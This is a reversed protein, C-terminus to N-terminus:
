KIVEDLRFKKLGIRWEGSYTRMSFWVALTNGDVLGTSRYLSQANFFHRSRSILPKKEFQWDVLNTSTALYLDQYSFEKKFANILMYYTGIEDSFVDIHWPNLSGPLNISVDEASGRQWNFRSDSVIQKISLARDKLGSVYFLYYDSGSVLVAPSLALSDLSEFSYMIELTWAWAIGDPSSRQVFQEDPGSRYILNFTSDAPDFFIDPDSNIANLPKQVLPNLGEVPERFKWGNESILMSPNEFDGNGFPFPTFVLYYRSGTAEDLRFLIDPHVAQGTGDYTPIDLITEEPLGHFADFENDNYCANVGLLMGTLLVMMRVQVFM